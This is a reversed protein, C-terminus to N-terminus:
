QIKNRLVKNQEEIAKEVWSDSYSKTKSKLVEIESKLTQNETQYTEVLNKYWDLETRLESLEHKECCYSCNKGACITGPGGCFRCEYIRLELELM